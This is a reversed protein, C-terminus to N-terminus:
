DKKKHKKRLKLSSKKDMSSDPAGRLLERSSASYLHETHIFSHIFYVLLVSLCFKTKTRESQRDTERVQGMRFGILAKQGSRGQDVEPDDSKARRESLQEIKRRLLLLLQEVAFPQCNVINKIVDENVEFGM